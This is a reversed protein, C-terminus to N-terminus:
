YDPNPVELKEYTPPTPVFVYGPKLVREYETVPTMLNGGLQVSSATRQDLKAPLAEVMAFETSVPNHIVVDNVKADMSSYSSRYSQGNFAYDNDLDIAYKNPLGTPNYNMINQFFVSSQGTVYLQNPLTDPVDLGTKMLRMPSTPRAPRVLGAPSTDLISSVTTSGTGSYKSAPTAYKGNYSGIHIAYEGWKAAAKVNNTWMADFSSKPVALPETLKVAPSPKEFSMVSQDGTSTQLILFDSIATVNTVEDRREQFKKKENVYNDSDSNADRNDSDGELWVVHDHQDAENSYRLRG